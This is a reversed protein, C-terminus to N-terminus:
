SYKCYEGRLVLISRVGTAGEGDVSLPCRLPPSTIKPPLEITSNVKIFNILNM